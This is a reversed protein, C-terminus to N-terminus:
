LCSAPRPPYRRPSPWRERGAKATLRVRYAGEQRVSSPRQRTDNIELRGSLDGIEVMEQAGSKKKQVGAHVEPDGAGLACRDRAEKVSFVVVRRSRSAALFSNSVIMSV